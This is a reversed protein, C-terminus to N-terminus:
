DFRRFGSGGSPAAEPAAKAAAERAKKSRTPRRSPSRGARPPAEPTLAVLLKQDADPVVTETAAGFGGLHVEIAIPTEGRSLHLDLPTEGQEEGDAVVRAGSPQSAVHVVVESPVPAPVPPPDPFSVSVPAPDPAHCARAAGTVGAAILVAAAAGAAGRTWAPRAREPVDPVAPVVVDEDIEDAPLRALERGEGARRLMEEKEAIREPFWRHMQEALREVPSPLQRAVELLDRRMDAATAYRDSPKKALARMCVAELAAPYGGVLRSPPIVPDRCIAELARATSVRKFLRRGTSLEYLVIGMAFIDSRRDLAEGKAQEPSMYEFKGKVDGVETRAQQDDTRAVGFDLLKVHGDYSVFLNQPSVDRHVLNQGRGDDSVLEHAAHLGACAESVVHAALVPEFRGDSALARKLVASLNEGAVYELVLFAEGDSEGLEHVQVVNPHRIKAVTRAEDLFMREFSGLSAYQRLIRKIVVARQFDARGWLRALLIEAMGGTALHGLVEYRGIKKPLV